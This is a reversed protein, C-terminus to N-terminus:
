RIAKNRRGCPVEEVAVKCGKYGLHIALHGDRKSLAEEADDDHVHCRLLFLLRELPAIGLLELL